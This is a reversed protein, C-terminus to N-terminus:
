KTSEWEKFYAQIGEEISLFNQAYGAARLRGLDAETFYQYQPRLKEPMEIFDISIKKGLAAATAQALDIFTRARGCGINFIGNPHPTAAFDAMVRYLDGVYVFDRKQEGDKFGTKYSKYLKVHQQRLIQERLHLVMSAQRGKHEEGPGYVNFFKFGAWAVPAKSQALAWLDFDHKSQAYLSLPKFKPLQAPDDSFGHEGMGYTGASSAYFLGSGQDACLNWLKQSYELNVERIFDARMEETNSCAGMHFVTRPRLTKFEELFEQPSLIPVQDRFSSACKRQDFFEPDDVAIVPGRPLDKLLKRVLYSGIFGAAGTVVVPAAIQRESSKQM